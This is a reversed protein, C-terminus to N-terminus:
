IKILSIPKMLFITSTTPFILFFNYQNYPFNFFITSTTPKMLFITSTKCSPAPRRPAGLSLSPTLFNEGDHPAPYSHPLIFGHSTPFFVRDKPGVGGWQWEQCGGWSLFLFFFFFPPLTGFVACVCVCVFPLFQVFQGHALVCPYKQENLLRM